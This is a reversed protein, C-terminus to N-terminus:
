LPALRFVLVSPAVSVATKQAIMRVQSKEVGPAIMAPKIVPPM